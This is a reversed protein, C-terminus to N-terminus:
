FKVGLGINVGKFNHGKVLNMDLTIEKIWDMTDRKLDTVDEVWCTLAYSGFRLTTGVVYFRELDLANDIDGFLHIYSAYPELRLPLGYVETVPPTLLGIGLKSISSKLDKMQVYNDDIRTRIHRIGLSVYPSYDNIIPHYKISSSLEVTHHTQDSTLIDSIIKDDPQSIDLPNQTKYEGSIHSYIYAAGLNIHTDPSINLRAGGGLKLAYTRLSFADNSNRNLDLSSEEYDSFGISGNIFYNYDDCDSKFNHKFPFFRSKLEGNFDDFKYHGSSVLDESGFFLIANVGRTYQETLDSKFDAYNLSTLFSLLVIIKRM